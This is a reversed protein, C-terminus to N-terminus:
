EQLASADIVKWAEIGGGGVCDRRLMLANPEGAFAAVIEDRGDGDLDRLSLAHGSCGSRWDPAPELRDRTYANDAGAAFLLLAGDSRLVALDFARASGLHGFALAGISLNSETLLPQRRYGKGDRSFVDVASQWGQDTSRQYAVAISPNGDGRTDAAASARVIAGSPLGDLARSIIRGGSFEYARPRGDAADGVIVATNRRSGVIGALLANRAPLEARALAVPSWRGRQDLFISVTGFRRSGGLLYDAVALLDPRGDGNWDLAGVQHTSYQAPTKSGPVGLPLGKDHRSFGGNGDGALVTLGRLHMGLALDAHGDGSFDAVVAAGYDYPLEPFALTNWRTWTGHGDGRLIVPRSLSKRAPASVIDLHGDGDIDALALDGRWQGAHPLGSGFDRLGFHRSQALEVKTAAPPTTDIGKQVGAVYQKVYFYDADEGAIQYRAFPFYRVTHADIKQYRAGAKAIREVHYARGDTEHLLAGSRAAQAPSEAASACTGIAACLVLLLASARTRWGCRSTRRAPRDHM